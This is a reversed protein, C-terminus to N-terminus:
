GFKIWIKRLNYESKIRLNDQNKIQIKPLIQTFDQYFQGFTNKGVFLTSFGM